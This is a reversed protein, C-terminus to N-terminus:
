FPVQIRVRLGGEPRNCAEISGGHALVARRAIALGLGFGTGSERASVRVFPEFMALLAEEPVGPGEDCVDIRYARTGDPPTKVTVAVSVVKGRDSFRLANRVVNELGRRLLEANGKVAPVEHETGASAPEHVEVDGRMTVGARDAEIAADQFVTKVLEPVDFYQDRAEVGSEVRSLTLLEGVLDDIRKSEADIRQLSASVNKTPDQQALDIALRLRALPTRLEHSVDHLLQERAVVLKQLQEAVLDFDRALDTIEDRRKWTDAHLRTDLDGQALRAFGRRLGQIPRTLYWALLGSFLLSAIAQSILASPPILYPLARLYGPEIWNPQYTLRWVGDPASVTMAVPTPKLHDGAVPTANEPQLPLRMEAATQETGLARRVQLVKGTGEPSAEIFEDLARRGGYRLVVSAVRIVRRGEDEVYGVIVARNREFYFFQTFWVALSIVVFMAWVGMLIKWFLRRKLIPLRTM